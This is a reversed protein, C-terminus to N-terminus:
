YKGNKKPVVKLPSVCHRDSVREVVGNVVLKDIESRILNSEADNFSVNSFVRPEPERFFPMKIGNVIWDVAVDSAGIREWAPPCLPMSVLVCLQVAPSSRWTGEALAELREFKAPLESVSDSLGAIDKDAMQMRISHDGSIVAIVVCVCLRAAARGRAGTPSVTRWFTM